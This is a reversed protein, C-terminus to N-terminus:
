PAGPPWADWATAAVREGWLDVDLPTGRHPSNAAEGRLYGLGVCRRAAYGWGVSSVEGVAEGAMALAEGGWV